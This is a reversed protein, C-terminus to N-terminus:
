SARLRRVSEKARYMATDAATILADESDGDEFLVARGISAEVRLVNGDFNIPQRLSDEVRRAVHEASAVAVDTILLVFEDGGM